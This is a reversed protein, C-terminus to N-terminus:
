DQRICAVGTICLQPGADITADEYIESVDFGNSELLEPFCIYGPKPEITYFSVHREESRFADQFPMSFIFVGGPRLIRWAELIVRGVDEPYIHEITHFCIAADFSNDEADIDLLNSYVFRLKEPRGGDYKSALAMGEDMAKQCIDFGTVTKVNDLKSLMNMAIGNNCGLDAVDGRLLGSYKRIIKGKPHNMWRKLNLPEPVLWDLEKDYKGVRPM